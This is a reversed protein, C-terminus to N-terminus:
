SATLLGGQKDFYGNVATAMLFMNTAIRNIREDKLHEGIPLWTLKGDDMTDAFAIGPFRQALSRRFTDTYMSCLGRLEEEITEATEKRREDRYLDLFEKYTGSLSLSLEEDTDGSLHWCHNVDSPSGTVPLDHLKAINIGYLYLTDNAGTAFRIKEFDLGLSANVSYRGIYLVKKEGPNTISDMFRSLQGMFGKKDQIGYRPDSKLQELPEERVIYGSKNFSMTEVKSTLIVNSPMGATQSWTDLRRELARNLNELEEIREKLAAEEKEKLVLENAQTRFEKQLLTNIPRFAMLLFLITIANSLLVALWVATKAVTLFFAINCIILLVCGIVAAYTKVTNKM